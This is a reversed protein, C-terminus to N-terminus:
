EFARSSFDQIEQSCSVPRYVFQCFLQAQGVVSHSRVKGAQNEFVGCWMHERGPRRVVKESLM